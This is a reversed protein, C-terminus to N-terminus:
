QSASVLLRDPIGVIVRRALFAHPVDDVAVVGLIAVRAGVQVDEFRIVEMPRPGYRFFRTREGTVVTLERGVYPKVLRSGREVQVTITLERPDIAVVEGALAFRAGCWRHHQRDGSALAPVATAALVTVVAALIWLTKKM